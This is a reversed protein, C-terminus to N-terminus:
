LRRPIADFSFAPCIDLQLSDTYDLMLAILFVEISSQLYMSKEQFFRTDELPSNRTIKEPSAVQGEAAPSKKPWKEDWKSSSM